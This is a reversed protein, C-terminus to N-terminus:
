LICHDMPCNPCREGDERERCSWEMCEKIMQENHEKITKRLGSLEVELQRAFDIFTGGNYHVAGRQDDALEDLAADTRPTQASDSM